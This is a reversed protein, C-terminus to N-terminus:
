AGRELRKEKRQARGAVLSALVGNMVLRKHEPVKETAPRRLQACRRRFSRAKDVLEEVSKIFALGVELNFIVGLDFCVLYVMPLAGFGRAARVIAIRGAGLASHEKRDPGEAFMGPAREKRRIELSEAQPTLFNRAALELLAGEPGDAKKRESIPDFKESEATTVRMRLETLSELREPALKKAAIRLRQQELKSAEFRKANMAIPQLFEDGHCLRNTDM